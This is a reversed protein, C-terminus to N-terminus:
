RATGWIFGWSCSCLRRGQLLLDKSPPDPPCCLSPGPTGTCYRHSESGEGLRAPGAGKGERGWPPHLHCAGHLGRNARPLRPEQLPPQQHPKELEQMLGRELVKQFDVLISAPRSRAPTPAPLSPLPSVSRSPAPNGEVARPRLPFLDKRPTGGWWGLGM